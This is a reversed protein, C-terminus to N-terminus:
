VVNQDQSTELLGGATAPVTFFHSVREEANALAAEGGDKGQRTTEREAYENPTLYGLRVTRCTYLPCEQGSGSGNVHVNIQQIQFRPLVLETFNWKWRGLKKM